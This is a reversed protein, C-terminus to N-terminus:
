PMIRQQIKYQLKPMSAGGKFEIFIHESNESSNATFASTSNEQNKFIRIGNLNEMAIILKPFRRAYEIIRDALIYLQQNVKRRERGRFEKVKGVRDERSASRCQRASVGNM